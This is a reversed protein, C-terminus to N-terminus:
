DSAKPDPAPPKPTAGVRTPQILTKIMQPPVRQIVLKEDGLPRGNLGAIANSTSDDDAYKFVCTGKSRGEFDKLVNFEALPGFPVVLRRADRETVFPPLGMLMLVNSRGMLPNATQSAGFAGM